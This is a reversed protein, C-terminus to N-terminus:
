SPMSLCVMDMSLCVMTVVPSTISPDSPWRYSGIIFTSFDPELGSLDWLQLSVCSSWPCQQAQFEQKFMRVEGRSSLGEAELIFDM